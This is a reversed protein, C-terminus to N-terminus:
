LLGPSHAFDACGESPVHWLCLDSRVPVGLGLRATRADTKWLYSFGVGGILCILAILWIWFLPIPLFGAIFIGLTYPVLTRLAQRPM